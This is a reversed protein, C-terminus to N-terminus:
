WPVVTGTMDCPETHINHIGNGITILKHKVVTYLVTCVADVYKIHLVTCYLHVFLFRITKNHEMCKKREM